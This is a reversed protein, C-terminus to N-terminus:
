QQEESCPEKPPQPPQVPKEITEFEVVLIPEVVEGVPQSRSSWFSAHGPNKETVKKLIWGITPTENKDFYEKVDALVDFDLHGTQGKELLQIDTAATAYSTPVQPLLGIMRWQKCCGDDDIDSCDWNARKDNFTPLSHVAIENDVFCGVKIITFRLTAKTITVAEKTVDVFEQLISNRVDRFQVITRSRNHSVELFDTNAHNAERDNLEIWADEGYFTLNGKHEIDVPVVQKKSHAIVAQLFFLAFVVVIGSVLKAM